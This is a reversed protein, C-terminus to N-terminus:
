EFSVVLKQLSMLMAFSCSRMIKSGGIMAFYDMESPCQVQFKWLLDLSQGIYLSEINESWADADFSM